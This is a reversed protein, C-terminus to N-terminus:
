AAKGYEVADEEALHTAFPLYILNELYLPFVSDDVPTISPDDQPIDM